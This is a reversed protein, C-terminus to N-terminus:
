LCSSIEGGSFGKQFAEQRQASTGHTFSDPVVQGQIRQQLRDDGVAAAANLAENIDGDEIVHKSNQTQVAWVGALCDAQLEVKVSAQNTQRESMLGLLNQVHHGVEHAIVYAAAFDGSAGLKNSLEDFFSLDLYVRQDLPCYFPGLATSATGCASRVQNRFLVMKPALYEKSQAQFLATWVDETDALVVSAFSKRDNDRATNTPSQSQQLTGVNQAVYTLPNGGMLYYIFAGFILAGAGMKGAGFSRQDVINGSERRGKWLM